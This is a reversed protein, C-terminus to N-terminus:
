EFSTRAKDRAFERADWPRPTSPSAGARVITGQGDQIEVDKGTATSTVLVHGKLVGV